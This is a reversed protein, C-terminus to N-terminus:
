HLFQGSWALFHYASNFNYGFVEVSLVRLASETVPSFFTQRGGYIHRKVSNM